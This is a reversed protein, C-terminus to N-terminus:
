RAPAKRDALMTLVRRAIANASRTRASPRGHETRAPRARNAAQAVRHGDAQRHLEAVRAQMLEYQMTAYM